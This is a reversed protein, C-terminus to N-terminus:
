FYKWFIPFIEEFDGTKFTEEHNRKIEESNEFM